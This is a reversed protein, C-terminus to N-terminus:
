KFNTHTVNQQLFSLVCRWRLRFFHRSRGQRRAGLSATVADVVDALEEHSISASYAATLGMRRAGEFLGPRTFVTYAIPRHSHPFVDPM